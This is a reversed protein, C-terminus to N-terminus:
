ILRVEREGPVVRGIEYYNMGRATIQASIIPVSSQACVIIMGVGMNFTRYMEAESVRGIHQMLTFIPLVSWSNRTIEVGLDPPLIRPINELLGGGTIHALGKLVDQDLLDELV